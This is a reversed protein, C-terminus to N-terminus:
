RWAHSRSRFVNIKYDQAIGRYELTFRVRYLYLDHMYSVAIMGESTPNLRYKMGKPQALLESTWKMAVGDGMNELGSKKELEVIKLLSGAQLLKTSLLNARDARELNEFGTRFLYMASAIGTTLILGAILVELLLFGSQSTTRM